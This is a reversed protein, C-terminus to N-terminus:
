LGVVGLESAVAQLQELMGGLQAASALAENL